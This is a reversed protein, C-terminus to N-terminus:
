PKKYLTVKFGSLKKSNKCYNVTTPKMGKISFLWSVIRVGNEVCKM